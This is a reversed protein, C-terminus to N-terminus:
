GRNDAEQIEIEGEDDDELLNVLHAIREKVKVLDIEQVHDVLGIISDFTPKLHSSGYHTLDFHLNNLSLIV